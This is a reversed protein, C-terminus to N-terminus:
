RTQMTFDDMADFRWIFKYNLFHIELELSYLTLNKIQLAEDTQVSRIRGDRFANCLTKLKDKYKTNDNVIM